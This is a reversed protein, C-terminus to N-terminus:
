LGLSCTMASTYIRHRLVCIACMNTNTYPNLATRVWRSFVIWFSLFVRSWKARVAPFPAGMCPTHIGWLISRAYCCSPHLLLFFCIRSYHLLITLFISPLFTPVFPFLGLCPRVLALSRGISSRSPRSDGVM